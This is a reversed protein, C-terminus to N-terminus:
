VGQCQIVLWALFPFLLLAFVIYMCVFKWSPTM